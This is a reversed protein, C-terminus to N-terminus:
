LFLSLNLLLFLSINCFYVKKHKRLADKSVSGKGCIECSYVKAKGHCKHSKLERQRNSKFDCNECCFTKETHIQMHEKLTESLKTKFDCVCCEFRKIDSHVMLKHRNLRSVSSFTKNCVECQELLSQDPHKKKFHIKLQRSHFFQKCIICMRNLSKSSAIEKAKQVYSPNLSHKLRMHNKLTNRTKMVKNCIECKFVGKTLSIEIRNNEGVVLETIIEEDLDENNIAGEEASPDRDYVEGAPDELELSGETILIGPSGGETEIVAEELSEENVVQDDYYNIVVREELSGEIIDKGPSGVETEMVAEELSEKNVVQDDDYNNVDELCEENIDTNVVTEEDGAEREDSGDSVEKNEIVGVELSGGFMVQEATKASISSKVQVWIKFQQMGLTDLIDGSVFGSEDVGYMVRILTFIEKMKFGPLIVVTETPDKLSNFIDKLLDSHITMMLSDVLFEGDSGAFRSDPYVSPIKSIFDDISTFDDSNDLDSISAISAM